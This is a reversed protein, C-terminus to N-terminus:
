ADNVVEEEDFLGEGHEHDVTHKEDPYSGSSKSDTHRLEPAVESDHVPASM